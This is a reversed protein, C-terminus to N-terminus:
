RRSPLFFSELSALRTGIDVIVHGCSTREVAMSVLVGLGVMAARSDLRTPMSQLSSVVLVLAVGCWRKWLMQESSSGGCVTARLGPRGRTAKPQAELMSIWVIFLLRLSTLLGNVRGWGESTRWKRGLVASAGFSSRRMEERAPGVLHLHGGTGFGWNWKRASTWDKERRLIEWVGERFM